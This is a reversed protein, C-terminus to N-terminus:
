AAEPPLSSPLDLEPEPEDDGVLEEAWDDSEFYDGVIEDAHSGLM